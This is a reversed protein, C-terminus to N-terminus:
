NMQAEVMKTRKLKIRRLRKYERDCALCARNCVKFIHSGCKKCPERRVYTAPIRKRKPKPTPTPKAEMKPKPTPTPKAVAVIRPPKPPKPARVVFIAKSKANADFARLFPHRESVFKARRADDAVRKAEKMAAKSVKRPKPKPKAAVSGWPANHVPETLEPTTAYDHSRARVHWIAADRRLLWLLFIEELTGTGGGIKIADPTEGVCFTGTIANM